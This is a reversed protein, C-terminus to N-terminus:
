GRLPGRMVITGVPEPLTGNQAAQKLAAGAERQRSRTLEATDLSPLLGVAASPIPTRGTLKGDPGVAHFAVPLSRGGQGVFWLVYTEGKGSPALGRLALDVAPQDGIRIITVGGSAHSGDVPTLRVPVADEQAGSSTSTNDGSGGGGGAVLLVVVLIVAAAGAALWLAWRTGRGSPQSVAAPPAGGGAPSGELADLRERVAALPLDPVPERELAEAARRAKAEVEATSTGLVEAVQEYSDGALLLRLLASQDESLAM